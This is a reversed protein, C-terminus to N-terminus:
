NNEKRGSLWMQNRIPTLLDQVETLLSQDLPEEICKVSEKVKKASSTGVLTTDIDRHSTAFQLALKPLSAKRKQCYALAKACIDRVKAPAPHWKPPGKETLLGMGLPAANIVGARRELLLPLVQVLTTNTLCFHCYSHVADVPMCELARRIAKLPLATIGVHRVKGHRKLRQLAPLTEDVLRPLSVFEIDQCQILDIHAVRLRRLSEDVSRIVREPSFDFDKEDAGYRGVKTALFYKERSIGRLAKGLISEAMTLGYYPAVDIFNIGLDVAAHVARIGEKEDVAGHTGGLPAAGFGLVSVKWGTKGLVRFKMNARRAYDAGAQFWATQAPLVPYRSAASLRQSEDGGKRKVWLM